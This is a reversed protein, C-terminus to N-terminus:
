KRIQKRPAYRSTRWLHAWGKSSLPRRRPHGIPGAEYIRSIGSISSAMRLRQGCAVGGACARRSTAFGIRHKHWWCQRVGCPAGPKVRHPPSPLTHCICQECWYRVDGASGTAICTGNRAIPEVAGPTLPRSALEAVPGGPAALNGPNCLGIRRTTVWRKQVPTHRRGRFPAHRTRGEARARLAVTNPSRTSGPYRGGSRARRQLPLNVLSDNANRWSMRGWMSLSNARCTSSPGHSLPCGISSRSFETEVVSRSPPSTSASAKNKQRLAFRGAFVVDQPGNEASM